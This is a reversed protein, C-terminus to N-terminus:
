QAHPCVRREFSGVAWTSIARSLMEREFYTDTM